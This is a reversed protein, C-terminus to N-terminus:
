LHCLQKINVRQRQIICVSRPQTSPQIELNHPLADSLKPWEQVARNSNEKPKEKQTLTQM